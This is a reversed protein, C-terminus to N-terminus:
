TPSNSSFGQIPLLSLCYTSYLTNELSPNLIDLLIVYSNVKQFLIKGRVILELFVRGFVCICMFMGVILSTLLSLTIQLFLINTAIKISM